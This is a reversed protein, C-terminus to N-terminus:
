LLVPPTPWASATCATLRKKIQFNCWGMTIVMWGNGDNSTTYRYVSIDRYTLGRNSVTCASSYRPVIRFRKLLFIIYGIHKIIPWNM